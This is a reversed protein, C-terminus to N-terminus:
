KENVTNCKQENRYNTKPVPVQQCVQKSEYNTVKKYETSCEKKYETKCQKRPVDKSPLARRNMSPVVSTRQLLRARRRLCMLVSRKLCQSWRPCKFLPASRSMNQLPTHCVSRVASSALNMGVSTRGSPRACLIVLRRWDLLSLVCWVWFRFCSQPSSSVVFLGM